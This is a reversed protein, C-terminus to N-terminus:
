RRSANDYANTLDSYVSSFNGNNWHSEYENIRNSVREYYQSSFYDSREYSNYYKTAKKCDRIIDERLSSIAEQNVNELREILNEDSKALLANNERKFDKAEATVSRVDHVSNCRRAKSIIGWANNRVKLFTEIKSIIGKLEKVETDCENLLKKAENEISLLNEKSWSPRNFYSKAYGTFSPTYANYAKRKLAYEQETDLIRKGSKTKISAETQIEKLVENLGEKAIFYGKGSIREEIKKEMMSSFSTPEVQEVPPKEVHTIANFGVYVLVVLAVVILTAKIITKKTKGMVM